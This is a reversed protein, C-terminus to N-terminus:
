QEWSGKCYVGSNKALEELKLIESNSLHIDLSNKLQIAYEPKTLGIIPIIGKELSWIIPIQSAKIKYKNALENQYQILKDIKKLKSKGFSLRRMSFLPFPKKTTYNGSLAGQELIMYGFYLINNKKCYDIMNYQETDSHLLSFHNQVTGLRCGYKKLQNDAKQIQSLNCNSLGICHILGQKMCDALEKMNEEICWPQHLWYIDTSSLNLRELSKKLSSLVEGNKYKKNPLHKTSIIINPNDAIFSGLIKESNGMGYVEATDWMNLGNEVATQFTQKLQNEDYSNGFVMKSGNIGSGWAWTGVMVKPLEKNNIQIEM